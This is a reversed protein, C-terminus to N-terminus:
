AWRCRRDRGRWRWGRRGVWRGSKFSLVSRCGSFTRGQVPLRVGNQRDEEVILGNAAVTLALEATRWQDCVRRTLYRVSRILIEDDCEVVPCHAAAVIADIDVRAGRSGIESPRRGRRTWRLRTGVRGDTSKSRRRRGINHGLPSPATAAPPSGFQQALHLAVQRATQKAM